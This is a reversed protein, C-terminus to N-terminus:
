RAHAIFCHIGLLEFRHLRWDFISVAFVGPCREDSQSSLTADTLTDSAVEVRTLSQHLGTEVRCGASVPEARTRSVHEELRQYPTRSDRQRGHRGSQPQM